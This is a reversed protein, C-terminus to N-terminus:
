MIIICLMKKISLSHTGDDTMICTVKATSVRGKVAKVFARYSSADERDVIAWAVPTGTYM